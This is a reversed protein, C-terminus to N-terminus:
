QKCYDTAEKMLVGSANWRPWNKSKTGIESCSLESCGAFTGSFTVVKTNHTFLNDPISTLNSSQCFLNTFNTVKTNYKFLNDPISILNLCYCFTAYFSTAETLYKFTNSSIENLNTGHFAKEVNKITNKWKGMSYLKKVKNTYKTYIFLFGMFKNGRIKIHYDGASSYSHPVDGGGTPCSTTTNDGWDITCDNVGGNDQGTRLYIGDSSGTAGYLIHAPISSSSYCGFFEDLDLIGNDCKIKNKNENSLEYGNMCNLTITEGSLMNVNNRSVVGERLSNGLDIDSNFTCNKRCGEFNSIDLINNNCTVKNKNSDKLGYGEVCELLKSGGNAITILSVTKLGIRDNVEIDIDSDFVCSGVNGDLNIIRNPKMELSRLVHCNKGKLNYGIKEEWRNTNKNIKILCVNGNNSAYSIINKNFKSNFLFLILVLLIIKLYSFLDYARQLPV